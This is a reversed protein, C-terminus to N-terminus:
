KQMLTAQTIVMIITILIIIFLSVSHQRQDAGADPSINDPLVPPFNNVAVLSCLIFVIQTRTVVRDNDRILQPFYRSLVDM